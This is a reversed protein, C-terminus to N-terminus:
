HFVVLGHSIIDILCRGLLHSVLLFGRASLFVDLLAGLRDGHFLFLLLGKELLHCGISFLLFDRGSTNVERLGDVQLVFLAIDGFLEQRELSLAM